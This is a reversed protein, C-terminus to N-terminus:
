QGGTIISVRRALPIVTRAVPPGEFKGTSPNVLAGGTFYQRGSDDLGSFTVQGLDLEVVTDPVNRKNRGFARRNVGAFPFNFQHATASIKSPVPQFVPDNLADALVDFLGNVMSIAGAGISLGTIATRMGEWGAIFAAEAGTAVFVGSPYLGRLFFNLTEQTGTQLDYQLSTVLADADRRSTAEDMTYGDNVVAAWMADVIAVRNSDVTAAAAAQVTLPGATNPVSLGQRSGESWLTYDGFQCACNNLLMEGGGLAMFHKHPWLSITNLANIFANGKVVYGIGNPASTTSAEIMMQPFPSDPAPVSGDAIAIGPGKPVSPNGNIPDLPPPIFAPVQARYMVCHDIYIARFILADPRFAVLFGETPNDFDDVQWGEGSINRLNFGSGGRFVNKVENGPTPVVVASRQGSVGVIETVNDPWDMHGDSPYRGPYVHISVPDSTALALLRAAELNRVAKTLNEGNKNDNGGQSVYIVREVVFSLTEATVAHDATVARDPVQKVSIESIRWLGDTGGIQIYPVMYVAGGPPTIDIGDVERNITIWGESEFVVADHLVEEGISVYDGDLWAIRVYVPEGEPDCSNEQVKFRAKVTAFSSDGLWSRDRLAVIRGFGVDICRGDPGPDVVQTAVIPAGTRDGEIDSTFGELLEGPRMQAVQTRETEAIIEARLTTLSPFAGSQAVANANDKLYLTWGDADAVVFREGEAVAALGSVIAGYVGQASLVSADAAADALNRAAAAKAAESVSTQAATEADTLHRQIKSESKAAEAAKTTATAASAAANSESSAAADRAGTIEDLYAEAAAQAAGETDASLVANIGGAIDDLATDLDARRVKDSASFQDVFKWVRAFEDNQVPM